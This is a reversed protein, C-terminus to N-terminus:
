ERSSRSNVVYVWKGGDKWQMSIVFWEKESEKPMIGTVYSECVSDEDNEEVIHV